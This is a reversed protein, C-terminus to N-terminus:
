APFGDRAHSKKLSEPIGPRKELTQVSTYLLSEQFGGCGEGQDTTLRQSEIM